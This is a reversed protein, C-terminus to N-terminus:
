QKPSVRIKKQSAAKLSIDIGDYLQKGTYTLQEKNSTDCLLYRNEPDVTFWEPFQNIRPWDIPLKMITKHRPFDFHVKGQWDKQATVCLYLDDGERVAGVVIDERWPHVSVGQTKWLCYMITTRAFNGDGHWGEIVGDPQQKKWMVKIESDIWQGNSAIRERNYLNIASEIADAYGDSSGNEWDFGRYSNINSLVKIAADRYERTGDVLYVTYIGNYTYGWTDALGEDEHTGTIPNIVNYFLGDTNRGVDLIRDLMEHIPKNYANKKKPMAFHVTAYLECLGSVIECGHDRLRLKETDRTPHHKDLLYYDGLRIAWDLYKGDGTMWYIRSLAQLMEGNLEVNTSVIKGYPTDVPAHKWMDDLISLMRDCWPSAGLWETIPLLGDKVYESSGFLISNLDPEDDLFGKKDFDYTDPLAGIRSTLKIETRLMEKMRGEFMGTDTFSTTLVMFPYNDAASDKANWFRDKTNRPILGTRSDALKLWGEVYDQCRRFGENALKGNVLALDFCDQEAECLGAQSMPEVLGTLDYSFAYSTNENVTKKCYLRMGDHHFSVNVPHRDGNRWTVHTFSHSFIDAMLKFNSGWDGSDAGITNMEQPTWIEYPSAAMGLGGRYAAASASISLCVSMGIVSLLILQRMIREQIDFYGIMRNKRGGYLM